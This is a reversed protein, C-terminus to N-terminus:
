QPRSELQRFGSGVLFSWTENLGEEEPVFVVVGDRARTLLVRYANLRLQFPDRILVETRYGRALRNTWAGDKQILYEGM